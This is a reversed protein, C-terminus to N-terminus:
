KIVYKKGNVVYMGKALGNVSDGVYQGSMNYVKYNNPLPTIDEGDLKDIATAENGMDDYEVIDDDFAFSYRAAAAFDDDDRGDAFVIKM